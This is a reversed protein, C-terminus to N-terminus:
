FVDFSPREHEGWPVEEIEWYWVIVHEAFNSNGPITQVCILLKPGLKTIFADVCAFVDDFDNSSFFRHKAKM